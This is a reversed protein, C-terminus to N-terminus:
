IQIVPSPREALACALRIDKKPDLGKNKLITMVTRLALHPINNDQSLHGLLIVEQEGKMVESLVEGSRDNSLHGHNSAIRRKLHMPYNGNMLMKRDHNAELLYLDAERIIKEMAPTVLGSDTLVVAKKGENFFAYGVADAADHYTSFPMFDLDGLSCEQNATFVYQNESKVTGIQNEMAMWTGYSAVIPIDYRRSLVGAGQIHDMHEHTVFIYDLEEPNVDINKLLREIKGGSLGADVLVKMHKTEIYQCNGQSGSSLSCFKM